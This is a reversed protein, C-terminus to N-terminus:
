KVREQLMADAIADDIADGLKRKADELKALAVGPHEWEPDELAYQYNSIALYASDAASLLKDTM